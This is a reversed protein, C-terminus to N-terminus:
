QPLRVLHGFFYWIGVALLVLALIYVVTRAWPDLPALSAAMWGARWLIAIVVVLVILGIVFWFLSDM